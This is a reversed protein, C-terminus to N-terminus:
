EELLGMAEAVLQYVAARQRRCDEKLCPQFFAVTGEIAQRPTDLRRLEAGCFYCQGQGEVMQIEWWLARPDTEGRLRRLAAALHLRCVRKNEIVAVAQRTCPVDGVVAM